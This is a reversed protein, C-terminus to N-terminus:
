AMYDGYDVRYLAKELHPYLLGASTAVRFGCEGLASVQVWGGEAGVWGGGGGRGERGRCFSDWGFRCSWANSKPNQLLLM